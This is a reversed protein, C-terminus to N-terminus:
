KIRTNEDMVVKGQKITFVVRGPMVGTVYAMTLYTHGELLRPPTGNAPKLQRYGSPLIGYQINGIFLIHRSGDKPNEPRFEWIRGNDLHYDSVDYVIFQDLYGGGAFTFTPSEGGEVRLGATHDGRCSQLFCLAIIILLNRQLM